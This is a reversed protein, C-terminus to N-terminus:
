AAAGMAILASGCTRFGEPASSALTPMLTLGRTRGGGAMEPAIKIEEDTGIKAM